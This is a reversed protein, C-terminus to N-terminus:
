SKVKEVAIPHEPYFAVVEKYLALAADTQGLHELRAADECADDPKMAAASMKKGLMYCFAKYGIKPGHSVVLKRVADATEAANLAIEVEKLTAYEAVPSYPKKPM